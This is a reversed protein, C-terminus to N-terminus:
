LYLSRLLLEAVQHISGPVHEPRAETLRLHGGLTAAGIMREDRFRGLVMPGWVAQLNAIKGASATQVAGLNSVVADYAFSGFLGCALDTSATAPLTIHLTALRQIFSERSGSAALQTVLFRAVDWLNADDAIPIRVAAADLFLGIECGDVGVMSRINIPSLITYPDEKDSTKNVIALAACIAGHVSTGEDRSKAILASTSALDFAATRVRPQDGEFSRWLPQKAIAEIGAREAPSLSAGSPLSLGPLLAEVPLRPAVAPLSAGNLLRVVDNLFAIASLGDAVAHHFTLVLTTPQWVQGGILVSARLLPSSSPLFPRALEEEVVKEWRPYERRECLTVQIPQLSEVFHPGDGDDQIGWRLPPHRLQTKRLAAVLDVHDFDGSLEGVICFHRHHVKSYLYMLREFVGLDRVKIGTQHSGTDLSSHM